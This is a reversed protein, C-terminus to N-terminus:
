ENTIYPLLIEKFEQKFNPTFLPTDLLQKLDELEFFRGGNLENSPKPAEQIVTKFVHVLERDIDSEFIYHTIFEPDFATLGLEELAERHLASEIDEGESVHGGVATDWKNPQIDKWEPRRQLFLEGYENFVHLHVVPHLLKSGNHCEARTACGIVEGLENVIPFRENMNDQM